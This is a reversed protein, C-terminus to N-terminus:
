RHSVVRLQPDAANGPSPFDVLDVPATNSLGTHRGPGHSGGFGTLMLVAIVLILIGVILASVKVWRPARPPASRPSGDPEVDTGDGAEPSRHPDAM